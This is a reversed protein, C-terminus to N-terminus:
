VHSLLCICHEETLCPIFVLGCPVLLDFDRKPGPLSVKSRLETSNSIQRRKPSQRITDGLLIEVVRVGLFNLSDRGETGKPTDFVKLM